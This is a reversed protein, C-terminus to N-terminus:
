HNHGAHPDTGGLKVEFDAKLYFAGKTVVVDEEKLTPIFAFGTSDYIVKEAAKFKFGDGDQVFIGDLGSVKVIATSPVALKKKESPIELVATAFMNPKLLADTNNIEVRIKLTRLSPDMKEMLTTVRGNFTKDPYIDTRIKLERDKHLFRIQERTSDFIGWLVSTDSVTFIVRSKEVEEGIRGSRSIVTGKSTARVTHFPTLFSALKKDDGKIVAEKISKLTTIGIGRAGLEGQLSFLEAMSTKYETERRQLESKEIGKIDSLKVARNYSSKNLRYNQFAKVFASKKELLEPSNVTYLPSGKSVSDGTNKSFKEIIGESRTTIDWTLDINDKVTGTLNIGNIFHREEPLMTTIGYEKLRSADIHLHNHSEAAASHDHNHESEAHDHGDCSSHDHGEHSDTKTASTEAKHNNGGCGTLILSTAFLLILIYKKM